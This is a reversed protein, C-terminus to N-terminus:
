GALRRQRPHPARQQKLGGPPPPGKTRSRTGLRPHDRGPDHLGLVQPEDDIVAPAEDVGEAIAERVEPDPDAVVDVEDTAETAVGISTARGYLQPHEM